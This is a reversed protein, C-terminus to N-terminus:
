SVCKFSQWFKMCDININQNLICKLVMQSSLHKNHVIWLLCLGILLCWMPESLVAQKKEANFDWLGYSDEFVARELFGNLTQARCKSVSLLGLKRRRQVSSVKRNERSFVLVAAASLRTRMLVGVPSILLMQEHKLTDSMLGATHMRM